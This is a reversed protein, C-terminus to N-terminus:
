EADADAAADEGAEVVDEGADAEPVLQTPAGDADDTADGSADEVESADPQGDGADPTKEFKDFNYTCAHALAVLVAAVWLASRARM